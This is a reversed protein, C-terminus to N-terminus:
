QNFMFCCLAYPIVKVWDNAAFAVVGYGVLPKLPVLPERRNRTNWGGSSASSERM